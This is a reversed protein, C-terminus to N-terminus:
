CRFNCHVKLIQLWTNEGLIELESVIIDVPYNSYQQSNNDVDSKNLVNVWCDWFKSKIQSFFSSGTDCGSFPLPKWTSYGLVTSKLFM